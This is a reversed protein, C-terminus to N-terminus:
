HRTTDGYIVRPPTSTYPNKASKPSYPSGYQSYPNNISTSSYRSGYKGYPNAVSEPDYRNANLKGLYTGDSGIIKGGQTTYRNKAGQTSYANVRPDYPSIPTGLYPNTTIIAQNQRGSYESQSLAQPRHTRVRTPSLEYGPQTASQESKAQTLWLLGALDSPSLRDIANDAQAPSLRTLADYLRTLRPLDEASPASQARASNTVAVSVFVTICLLLRTLRKM